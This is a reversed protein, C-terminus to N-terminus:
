CDGAEELALLMLDVIKKAGLKRRINARHFEITRSSVGLTAGAEKSSAGRAIQALVARERSTLPERAAAPRSQISSTNSRDKQGASRPSGKREAAGRRTKSIM